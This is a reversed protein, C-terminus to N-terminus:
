AMGKGDMHITLAPAAAICRALLLKRSDHTKGLGPLQPWPRCPLEAMAM